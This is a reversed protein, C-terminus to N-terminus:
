DSPLPLPRGALSENGEKEYDRAIGKGAREKNHPVRFHSNRM